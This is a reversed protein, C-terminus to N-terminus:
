NNEEDVCDCPEVHYDNGNGFFLLGYGLCTDCVITKVSNIM